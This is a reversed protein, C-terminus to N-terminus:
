IIRIREFTIWRMGKNLAPYDRFCKGFSRTERLRHCMIVATTFIEQVKCANELEWSSKKNGKNGNIKKTIAGRLKKKKLDKVQTIWFLRVFLKLVARRSCFLSFLNRTIDGMDRYEWPDHAVVLWLARPMWMMTYFLICKCDVRPVATVEGNCVNQKVSYFFGM